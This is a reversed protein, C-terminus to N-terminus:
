AKHDPVKYLHQFYKLDVGTSAHLLRNINTQDSCVALRVSSDNRNTWRNQWEHFFSVYMSTATKLAIKNKLLSVKLRVTGRINPSKQSDIKGVDWSLVKAVPDFTYKGQTATLTCNLVSKPMPIEVKTNELQFRHNIKLWFHQLWLLSNLLM